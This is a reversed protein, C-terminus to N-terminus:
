QNSAMHVQKAEGVLSLRGAKQRRYLGSAARWNDTHVTKAQKLQWLSLLRAIM